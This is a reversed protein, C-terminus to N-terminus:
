QNSCNTVRGWIVHYPAPTNLSRVFFVGGGGGAASMLPVTGLLAMQQSAPAQARLFVQKLAPWLSNAARDRSQFRRKNTHLGQMIAQGKDGRPRLPPMPRVPASSRCLLPPTLPFLLRQFVVCHDGIAEQREGTWGGSGRRTVRVSKYLIGHPKNNVGYKKNQNKNRVIITLGSLRSEEPMPTPNLDAGRAASQLDLLGRPLRLGVAPGRDIAMRATSFKLASNSSSSFTHFCHVLRPHRM